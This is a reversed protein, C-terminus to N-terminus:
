HRCRQSAFRLAHDVVESPFPSKAARRETRESSLVVHCLFILNPRDLGKAVTLRLRLEEAEYRKIAAIKYPTLKQSESLGCPSFAGLIEDSSQDCAAVCMAFDEALVPM